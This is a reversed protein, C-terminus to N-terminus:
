GAERLLRGLDIPLAEVAYDYCLRIQQRSLRHRSVLAHEIERRLARRTRELYRSVGSESEGMIKAIERLKLGHRYYYGLRMRDRPDLAGIAHDLEAGIAELYRDRDPESQEDSAPDAVEHTDDIPLMRQAERMSDVHRQAIVAKLWTKLSSRGQFYDLLSRRRGERVEIGYLEAYLSDALERARADDAAMARAAGYLVPRYERVLHEWASAIGERCALALALDAVRLVEIAAAPDDGAKSDVISGYIAKAFVRLPLNWGAAGSKEYARNILIAHRATFQEFDLQV